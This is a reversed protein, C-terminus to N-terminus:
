KKPIVITEGARLDRTRLSPNAAKIREIESYTGYFRRSLGWLTEGKKVLHKRQSSSPSASAGAGRNSAPAPNASRLRSNSSSATSTPTRKKAPPPLLTLEKGPHMRVKPNTKQIFSALSADGYQQHAIRWYGDGPRIRYKRPFKATRNTADRDKVSSGGNDRTATRNKSDSRTPSPTFQRLRLNEARGDRAGTAGKALDGKGLDGPTGTSSAGSSSGVPRETAVRAPDRLRTNSVVGRDENRPRSGDGAASREAGISTPPAGRSPEEDGHFVPSPARPSRGALNLRGSRGPNASRRSERSSNVDGSAPENGRGTSGGAGRTLTGPRASNGTRRDGSRASDNSLRGARTNPQSGSLGGAIAPSRSREGARSDSPRETRPSGSAPEDGPGESADASSSSEGTETPAPDSDDQVLRAIVVVMLVLLAVLAVKTGSSM